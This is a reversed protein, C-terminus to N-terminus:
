KDNSKLAQPMEKQASGHAALESRPCGRRIM